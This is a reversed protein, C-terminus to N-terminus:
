QYGWALKKVTMSCNYPQNGSIGGLGLKQMDGWYPDFAYLQSYGSGPFIKAKDM